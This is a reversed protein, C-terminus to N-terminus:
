SRSIGRGYKIRPRRGAARTEEEGPPRGPRPARRLHRARAAAPAHHGALVPLLGRGAPGHVGAGGVQRRIAALGAGGPRTGKRGAGTGGPSPIGEEGAPPAATRTATGTCPPRPIERAGPVGRVHRDGRGDRPFARRHGPETRAPTRAAQSTRWCRSHKERSIWPPRRRASSRQWSRTGRRSSRIRRACGRWSRMGGASKEPKGSTAPLTGKEQQSRWHEIHSHYLRERRMLAGREPSGEPLADFEALIRAKYAATFTRRKPRGPKGSTVQGDHGTIAAQDALTM